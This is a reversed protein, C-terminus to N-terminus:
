EGKRVIPARDTWEGRRAAIVPEVDTTSTPRPRRKIPKRKTPPTAMM